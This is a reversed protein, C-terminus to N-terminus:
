KVRKFIYVQERGMEGTSSSITSLEWGQQGAYNLLEPLWGKANGDKELKKLLANMSATCSTPNDSDIGSIADSEPSKWITVAPHTADGGEQALTAYEWKPAGAKMGMLLAALLSMATCTVILNKRM